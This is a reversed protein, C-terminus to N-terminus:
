RLEVAEEDVPVLPVCVGPVVVTGPGPEAVLMVADGPEIGPVENAIRLFTGEPDPEGRGPVWSVVNIDYGRSELQPSPVYRIAFGLLILTDDGIATFEGTAAENPTTPCTGPLMCGPSLLLCLAAM